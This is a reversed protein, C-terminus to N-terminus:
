QHKILAQVMMNPDFVKTRLGFYHNVYQCVMIDNAETSDTFLHIIQSYSEGSARRLLFFMVFQGCTTSLSSQVVQSQQVLLAGDCFDQINSHYSTIPRGFSDFIELQSPTDQYFAIWHSGPQNSPDTNCVWAAPGVMGQRTQASPLSDASFVGKFVAKTSGHTRLAHDIERTNM